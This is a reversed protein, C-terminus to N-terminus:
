TDPPILNPHFRISRIPHFCLVSHFSDFHISVNEMWGSGDLKINGNLESRGDIGHKWGSQNRGDLKMNGGWENREMWSLVKM